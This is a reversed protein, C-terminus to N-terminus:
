RCVYSRCDNDPAVCVIGCMGCNNDDSSLNVECGNAPMGDCDGRGAACM